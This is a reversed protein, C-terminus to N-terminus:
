SAEKRRACLDRYMSRYEALMREISYERVARERAASGHRARLAPDQVYRLIAAALAASNGQEVLEGTQGPLVLELNGGTASAVVPLGSAMAELITNSIGERKSGLVFIDMGRLLEAVDDRNGPLWAAHAQSATALYQEVEGKLEGDGIMLLRVDPGGAGLRERVQVFARALNMPDKIGSFRTASGVVVCGAPFHEKPLVQQQTGSREHFRAVDVGNCIRRVKAARLGVMTKLWQEIDQSVAVFQHIMPNFAKRIALFKRNAGDADIEDRGHEGHVRWRVGAALAVAACDITGVNRTHVVTPRLERLVRYLRAYAGFDKGPRKAVTRVPVDQRQLRGRLATRDTMAIIAHRFENDPLGNVINVVGNELGGVDFQNVVHAVLIRPDRRHSTIERERESM